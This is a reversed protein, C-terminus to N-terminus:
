VCGQATCLLFYLSSLQLHFPSPSPVVLYLVQIPVKKWMQLPETNFLLPFRQCLNLYSFLSLSSSICPQSNLSFFKMTEQCGVDQYFFFFLCFVFIVFFLLFFPFFPFFLFFHYFSSFVGLQVWVVQSCWSIDGFDMVVRGFESRFESHCMSDFCIKILWPFQHPMALDACAIAQFLLSSISFKIHCSLLWIDKTTEQPFLKFHLGM